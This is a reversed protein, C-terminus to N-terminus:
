SHPYAGSTWDRERGPGATWASPCRRAAVQEMAIQILCELGAWQSEVTPHGISWEGSALPPLLPAAAPLAPVDDGVVMGGRPAARPSRFRMVHFRM